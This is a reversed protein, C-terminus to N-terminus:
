PLLFPRTSPKGTQNCTDKDLNSSTIILKQTQTILIAAVMKVLFIQIYRKQTRRWYQVTSDGTHQAANDQMAVGVKFQTALVKGKTQADAFYFFLILKPYCDLFKKM